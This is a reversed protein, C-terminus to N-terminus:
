PQVGPPATNWNADDGLLYGVMAQSLSPLGYEARAVVTVEVESMGFGGGGGPARRLLRVRDRLLVPQRAPLGGRQSRGTALVRATYANLLYQAFGTTVVEAPV